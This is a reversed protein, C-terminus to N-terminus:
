YKDGIKQLQFIISVSFHTICVHTKAKFTTNLSLYFEPLEWQFPATYYAKCYSYPLNVITPLKLIFQVLTAQSLFSWYPWISFLRTIKCILERSIWEMEWWREATFAVRRNLKWLNASYPLVCHIFIPSIYEQPLVTVICLWVILINLFLLCDWDQDHAHSKLGHCQICFPCHIRWM